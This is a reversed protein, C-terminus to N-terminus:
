KLIILKKTATFNGSVIRYFYIGSPLNSANFKVSHKGSPKNEKVLSAVEGGLIDYIKLEVFLAEPISYEITTTPNFPNPYNAILAFDITNVPETQKQPRYQQISRGLLRQTEFVLPDDPYKRELEALVAETSARDELELLFFVAKQFLSIRELPSNPFANVNEKLQDLAAVFDRQKALYYALNLRAVGALEKESHQAILSKIYDQFGPKGSENYALRIVNLVSLAEQSSPSDILIAKGIQLASDYEEKQYFIFAKWLKERLNDLGSVVPSTNPNYENDSSKTLSRGAHPDSGYWWPDYDIDNGSSSNFINPDPPDIGWWNKEALSTSGYRISIQYGNTNYNEYISNRGGTPPLGSKGLFVTSRYAAYIGLNGNRRIVNDGWTPFTGFSATVGAICNVGNYDNYTITNNYFKPAAGSLIYIGTGCYNIKTSSISPSANNILLGYSANKIEAGTINSSSGSSSNIVIGYWNNSGSQDFIIPNYSSGQVKLTGNVIISAGNELTVTVGPVNFNWTEGVPITLSQTLTGGYNELTYKLAEYANIRGYGLYQNWGNTDYGHVGIKDATNKIIDYVVPPKLTDNVSLILGVLASVFPGSISEGVSVHGTETPNSGSLARYNSGPASCDIYAETPDNIPDTGPSYDFGDIFQEEDDVIWTASVAIVQGLSGFNYAAPYIVVPPTSATGNGAAAVVVVENLFAYEIADYWQQSFGEHANAYNVIDAGNDVLAIIDTIFDLEKLLLGTNWGLSAIDLQNDTNAGAVGAVIIGHAGYQGNLNEWVVKGILDQHLTDADYNFFDLIGIGISISGITIDWAREANIVDFSWRYNEDLYWPDNPSITEYFKMPGEAYEVDQYSQVINVVKEIPVQNDFIIRYIQSLDNVRVERKSRRGFKLRKEGNLM